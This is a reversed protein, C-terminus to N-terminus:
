KSTQIEGSLTKSIQQNTLVYLMLMLLVGGTFSAFDIGKVHLCWDRKCAQGWFEKTLPLWYIFL